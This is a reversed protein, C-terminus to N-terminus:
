SHPQPIEGSPFDVDEDVGAAFKQVRDVVEALVVGRRRTMM